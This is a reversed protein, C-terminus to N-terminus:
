RIVEQIISDWFEENGVPIDPLLSNSEDLEVTLNNLTGTFKFPMDDVYEESVPTQTDFGVVFNEDQTMRYPLSAKVQGETIFQDTASDSSAYLSVTAGAYLLDEDDSQYVAKLSTISGIDSPLDGAITSSKEDIGAYNYRYVLQGDKVFLGFGGFRGGLTVLMGEDPDESDFPDFTVDAVITHDVNKLNLVTGEPSQYGAPYAIKTRGETLEPRHGPLQRSAQRDDM